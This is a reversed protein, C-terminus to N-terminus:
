YRLNCTKDFAFTRNLDGPIKLTSLIIKCSLMKPASAAIFCRNALVFIGHSFIELLLRVFILVNVL